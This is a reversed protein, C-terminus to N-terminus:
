IYQFVGVIWMVGVIWLLVKVNSTNFNHITPTTQTSQERFFRLMLHISIHIVFGASLTVGSFFRLMLHISIQSYRPLLDRILLLVKVNSTNFYACYSVGHCTSDFFRLMLHISIAIIIAFRMFYCYFFRLMLHISIFSKVILQWYKRLLVKVNSTNFYHESVSRIFYSVRLVKVNSTNFHLHLNYLITLWFFFRLMLHISISWFLRCDNTNDLLVKVNSTNFDQITKSKETAYTFFRLM